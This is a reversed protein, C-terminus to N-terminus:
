NLLVKKIINLNKTELQVFYVGSNFDSLYMKHKNYGASIKLLQSIITRGTLDLIQVHISENENASFTLYLSEDIRNFYTTFDTIPELQDDIYLPDPSLKVLWMDSGGHNGQVDGNNSLTTGCIIFGSDSSQLISSSNEDSSGGLCKQWQINFSTDLKAIWLDEFSSHNGNVDGDNSSTFGSVVNGGDFTQTICYGTESGLGGLCRQHMLNGLSDTMVTWNDSNGGPVGHFGSVDDIDYMTYGSLLFGGNSAKDMVYNFQNNLHGGFCNQWVLNSISDLILIWYDYTWGHNGTVDGDISGTTGSVAYGGPGTPIISHGEDKNTGGYCKQWILDGTLNIKIVWVDSHGSGNLTDHKGSVDGDNSDTFGAILYDGNHDQIASFAVESYSGGYCNQWIISGALDLKVVWFDTYGPLSHNGSVDGDNSYTSGVVLFGSDLNQLVISKMIPSAGIESDTGGLCKQWQMSGAYDVKIVSIDYSGHNGSIDGDNSNTIGSIIYGGDLTTEVCTAIEFDTGGDCHQWQINPQAVLNFYPFLFLTSLILLNM